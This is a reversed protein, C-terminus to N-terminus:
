REASEARDIYDVTAPHEFIISLFTVNDYNEYKLVSNHDVAGSTFYRVGRAGNVDYQWAHLADNAENITECEDAKIAELEKLIKYIKQKNAATMADLEKIVEAAKVEYEDLDILIGGSAKALDKKYEDVVRRAKEESSLLEIEKEYERASHAKEAEAKIEDAKAEAARIENKIKDTKGAKAELLEATRRKIANLSKM